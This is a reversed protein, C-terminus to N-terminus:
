EADHGPKVRADMIFNPMHFRQTLRDNMSTMMSQRTLGPLSPPSAHQGECQGKATGM